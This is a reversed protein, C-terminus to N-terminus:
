SSTRIGNCVPLTRWRRTKTRISFSFFDLFFFFFSVDAGLDSASGLAVGAGSSSLVGGASRKRYSGDAGFTLREYAAQPSAGPIQAVRIRWRQFRSEVGMGGRGLEGEIEYGGIVRTGGGTLPATPDSSISDSNALAFFLRNMKERKSLLRSPLPRLNVLM